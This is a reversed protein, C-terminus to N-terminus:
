NPVPAPFSWTRATLNRLGDLRAPRTLYLHREESLSLYQETLSILLWVAKDISFYGLVVM